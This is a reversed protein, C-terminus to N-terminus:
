IPVPFPPLLGSGGGGGGGPGGGGYSPDLDKEFTGAKWVTHVLLYGREAEGGENVVYGWEGWGSGQRLVWVFHKGYPAYLRFFYNFYYHNKDINVLPYPKVLMVLPFIRYEATSRKLIESNGPVIVPQPNLQRVAWGDSYYTAPCDYFWAGAGEDWRWDASPSSVGYYYIRYGWVVAQLPIYYVRLPEAVSPEDGPGPGPPEVPDNVAANIDLPTYPQIWICGAVSSVSAATECGVFVEKNEPNWSVRFGFSEAVYRAPLCLRQNTIEPSVDMRIEEPSVNGVQRKLVPSGVTLYITTGGKKLAVTQTVSDWNIDEDRVGLSRALFRVPVYSRGEKLYPAVDMIFTQDGAEYETQDIRFIVPLAAAAAGSVSIVKLVVGEGGLTVENPCAYGAVRVQQGLCSDLKQYEGELGPYPLLVYHNLRFQYEVGRQLTGETTIFQEEEAEGYGAIDDIYIDCLDTDQYASVYMRRLNGPATGYKAKFEETFNIRLEQWEGPTLRFYKDVTHGHHWANSLVNGEYRIERGSAVDVIGIVVGSWYTTCGGALKLWMSYGASADSFDYSVLSAGSWWYNNANYVRCGYKGSRAYEPGVRVEWVHGPAPGQGKSWNYDTRWGALDGTEFGGNFPGTSVAAGPGHVTPASWEKPGACAPGSVLGKGLLLICLVSVWLVAKTLGKKPRM